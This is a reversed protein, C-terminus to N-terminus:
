GALARRLTRARRPVSGSWEGGRALAGGVLLAPIAVISPTTFSTILATALVALAGGASVMLQGDIGAGERTARAWARGIFWLAAVLAGVGLLLMPVGGAMALQWYGSHPSDLIPGQGVDAYWQEGHAAPIADV